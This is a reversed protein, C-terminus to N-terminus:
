PAPEVLRECRTRQRDTLRRLPDLRKLEDLRLAERAWRAAEVTEGLDRSTEMLRLVLALGLPDLEHARLWADKAGLLDTREGSATWIATRTTGLWSWAGASSSRLSCGEEGIERAARLWSEQQDAQGLAGHMDGLSLALRGLARRTSRHSPRQEVAVSLEAFAAEAGRLTLLNIQAGFQAESRAESEGLLAALDRRIAHFSDSPDLVDLRGLRERIESAPRTQAAGRELAREWSGVTALASALVSGLALAVGAGILARPAARRQIGVGEGSGLLALVAGLLPASNSWVPTVEIMTHAGLAAGAGALAASVGRREGRALARMVGWSAVVWLGLGIARSVAGEPTAMSSEILASLGTVAAGILAVIMLNQRATMSGAGPEIQPDDDRQSGRGCALVLMLGLAAWALGFLGLTSTWDLLANHPSTVEEVGLAPRALLYAEKFGSPGVGVLPNELIIGASGQMYHWRFLLSLEGLAEGILGRAIVLGLVAAPAGALLLARWRRGDSRAGVVALVGLGILAGGLGGKSHSMLLVALAGACGVGLALAARRDSARASAVGLGGFAVLGIAGFTAYVNSLGFWASADNQNLRREYGQAMPSDPTWGRAALVSERRSEYDRITQPHEVLQQLAGKSALMLVFGLCLGLGVRRARGRLHALGVAGALAAGWGGGILLDELDGWGGSRGPDIRLVLGHLVVGVGGIGLLVLLRTRIRGGTLLAGVVACACGVFAGIDMVARATPGLGTKPVLTVLPDSDWYPMPDASVSARALAGGAVLLLAIWGLAAGLRTRGSERPPTAPRIRLDGAGRPAGGNWAGAGPSVDLGVNGAADYLLRKEPDSLVDYAEQVEAFRDQADPAENVDPHLKRVLARYASKIKDDTASRSVGLTSYFNAKGM